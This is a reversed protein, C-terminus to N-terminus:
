AQRFTVSAKLGSMTYAYLTVDGSLTGARLYVIARGQKTLRHKEPYPTLDDPRGNEIGLIVADGLIQYKIDEDQTTLRGEADRLEVEVQIVDLGDAKFAAKDATLM